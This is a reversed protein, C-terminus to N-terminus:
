VWVRFPSFHDYIIQRKFSAMVATAALVLIYTRICGNKQKPNSDQHMFSKKEVNPESVLPRKPM